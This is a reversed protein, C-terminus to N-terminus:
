RDAPEQREDEMESVSILESLFEPSSYTAQGNGWYLFAPLCFPLIDMKKSLARRSTLRCSEPNSMQNPPFLFRGACDREDAGDRNVPLFTGNHSFDNCRQRYGAIDDGHCNSDAIEDDQKVSILATSRRLQPM